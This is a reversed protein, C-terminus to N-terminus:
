ESCLPLELKVIFHGDCSNDLSLKVILGCGSLPGPCKLLEETDTISSLIQFTYLIEIVCFEQEPSSM